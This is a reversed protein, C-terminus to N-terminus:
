TPSPLTSVIIRKPLVDRGHRSQAARPMEQAGGYSGRGWYKRLHTRLREIERDACEKKNGTCTDDWVRGREWVEAVAIALECYMAWPRSSQGNRCHSRSQPSQHTHQHTHSEAATTSIVKLPGSGYVLMQVCHILTKPDGSSLVVRSFLKTCAPCESMMTAIALCAALKFGPDLGLSDQIM